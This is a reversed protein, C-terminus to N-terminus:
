LIQGEKLICSYASTQSFNGVFDGSAVTSNQRRGKVMSIDYWGFEVRMGM